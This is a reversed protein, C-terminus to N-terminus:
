PARDLDPLLDPEIGPLADIARGNHAASCAMVANAVRKAVQAAQWKQM